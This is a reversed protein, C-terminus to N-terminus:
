QRRGMAGGADGDNRKGSHTPGAYYVFLQRVTTALLRSLSTWYGGRRKERRM